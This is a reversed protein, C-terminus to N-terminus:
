HYIMIIIGNSDSKQAKYLQQLMIKLDPLDVECDLLIYIMDGMKCIM